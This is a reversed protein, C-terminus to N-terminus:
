PLWVYYTTTVGAVCPVPWISDVMVTRLEDGMRFHYVGPEQLRFTLPRMTTACNRYQRFTRGSLAANLGEQSLSEGEDLQNSQHDLQLIDIEDGSGSQLIWNGYFQGFPM